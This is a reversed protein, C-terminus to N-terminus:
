MDGTLLSADIIREKAHRVAFFMERAIQRTRQAYAESEFPTNDAIKPDVYPIAFRADAGPVFPCSADAESCVIIAAFNGQPNKPDNFHKSYMQVAPSENDFHASYLPNGGDTLKEITFGAEHLASVARPNFATAETGGSYTSVNGIGYYVSAVKLWLQGIHSRRSNHSCIVTLRVEESNAVKDHIYDGIEHLQMKREKDIMWSETPLSSVYEMLQPNFSPETM